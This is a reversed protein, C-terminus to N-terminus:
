EVRDRLRHGTQWPWDLLRVRRDIYGTETTRRYLHCGLLPKMGKKSRKSCRHHKSTNAGRDLRITFKRGFVAVGIRSRFTGVEGADSVRFRLLESGFFPEAVIKM